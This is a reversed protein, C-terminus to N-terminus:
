RVVFWDRREEVERAGIIQVQDAVDVDLRYIRVQDEEPDILDRIGKRLDDEDSARALTAEFVSLQVRPGYGSLLLALRERRRDDAVDYAIVAIKRTYAM